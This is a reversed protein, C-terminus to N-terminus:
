SDDAAADKGGGGADEAKKAREWERYQEHEEIYRQCEQKGVQEKQIAERLRAINVEHRQIAKKLASYVYPPKKV